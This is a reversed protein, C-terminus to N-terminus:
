KYYDQRQDAKKIKKRRLFGLMRKPLKVEAATAMKDHLSAIASKVTRLRIHRGAM